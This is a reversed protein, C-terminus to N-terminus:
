IEHNWEAFVTTQNRVIKEYLDSIKQTRLGVDGNGFLKDDISGIPTIEAATGCLFAEDADLLEGKKLDKEIWELDLISAM